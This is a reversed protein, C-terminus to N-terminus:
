LSIWSFVSELQKPGTEPSRAKVWNILVPIFKVIGNTYISKNNKFLEKFIQNRM